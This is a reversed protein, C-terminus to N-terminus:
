AARSLVLGAMQKRLRVRWMWYLLVFLPGIGLAFLLPVIRVPEPIFKMQGLFFSGTAIFLAFCMRWLHRALRRPGKLGGERIVRFDGIGALLYITGLFFVMGAPVGERAHRPMAWVITGDRLTFVATALVLVMLVSDIVRQGRPFPKVATTATLAFYVVSAGGIIMSTKGEYAAVVSAMAGATGMAYAFLIGAQKHLKGGKAVALALFGTVIGVLGAGFHFALVLWIPGSATALTVKEMHSVWVVAAAPLNRNDFGWAGPYM